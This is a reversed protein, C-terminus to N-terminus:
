QQGGGLYQKMAEKQQKFGILYGSLQTLFLGDGGGKSSLLNNCISTLGTKNKEFFEKMEHEHFIRNLEAKFTGFSSPEGIEAEEKKQLLLTKDKFINHSRKLQQVYSYVNECFGEFDDPTYEHGLERSLDVVALDGWGVDLGKLPVAQIGQEKGARLIKVMEESNVSGSTAFFLILDTVELNPETPLIVAFIESKQELYEILEPIRHAEGDQETYIIMVAISARQRCYDLIAGTDRQAVEQEDESFPNGEIKLDRLSEMTWIFYPLISLQNDRLDLKNLNLKSIEEPIHSLQNKELWLIDLSGLNSITSPIETINNGGLLLTKISKLQDICAPIKEIKNYALDLEKIKELNCFSLPINSIRNSRLYFKEVNILGGISEPLKSLRNQTLKLKRLSTLQGFNDPLSLLGNAECNFIKLNKLECFSEPLQSIENGLPKNDNTSWTGDIDLEELATLNGFNEPLEELKNWLVHLVKLHSLNCIGEPLTILEENFLNLGIIHNNESVFGLYNGVDIPKDSLNQEQPQSPQISQQQAQFGGYQQLTTQIQQITQQAMQKALEKAKEEDLGLSPKLQDLNPDDEGLLQTGMELTEKLKEQYQPTSMLTYLKLNEKELEELTATPTYNLKDLIRKQEIILARLKFYESFYKAMVKAKSKAKEEDMELMEKYQKVTPHNEGLSPIMYQLQMQIQSKNALSALYQNEYFQELQEISMAAQQDLQAEYAQVQQYQAALPNQMQAQVAQAQAQQAAHIKEYQKALEEKVKDRNEICPIEKQFNRELAELFEAEYTILSVGNYEKIEAM